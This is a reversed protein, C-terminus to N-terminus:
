ESYNNPDDILTLYQRGLRTIKYSDATRITQFKPSKITKPRKASQNKIIEEVKKQLEEINKDRKEENRSELLGFRELKERLFRYQQDDIQEEQLLNTYSDSSSGDSLIPQNHLRLVRIDLHGLRTLNEFLTYVMDDSPNKIAMINIFANTCRSVKEERNEDVITDLYADRYPGTFKNREEEELASLRENIVEQNEFLQSISQKLNKATRNMRYDFVASQFGPVVAGVVSDALIGAFGSFPTSSLLEGIDSLHDLATETAAEASAVAGDKLTQIIKKSDSKVITEYEEHLLEKHLLSIKRIGICGICIASGTYKLTSYSVVYKLVDNPSALLM